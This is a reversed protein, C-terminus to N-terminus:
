ILDSEWFGELLEDAVTGDSLDYDGGVHVENFLDSEMDICVFSWEEGLCIEIGCSYEESMFWEEVYDKIESSSLGEEKLSDVLRKKKLKVLDNISEVEIIEVNEVESRGQLEIVYYKKM